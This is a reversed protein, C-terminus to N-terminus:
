SGDTGVKLRAMRVRRPQSNVRIGPVGASTADDNKVLAARRLAIVPWAGPTTGRGAM